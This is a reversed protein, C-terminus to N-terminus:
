ERTFMGYMGLHDGSLKLGRNFGSVCKKGALADITTAISNIAQTAMIENSTLIYGAEPLKAKMGTHFHKKSSCSYLGVIQNPRGTVKSAEMASLLQKFGPQNAQYWDYNTKKNSKRVPPCFDPGGGDRAHGIYMVVESGRAIEGYFKKVAANCQAYQRERLTTTNAVNNTTLTGYTLSVTFRNPKGDPGRVIKTFFDGSGKFGCVNHGRTCPETLTRRLANAIYQDFVHEYPSNDWYGFGVAINLIGDKYLDQYRKKCAPSSDDETTTFPVRILEELHNDLEVKYDTALAPLSLTFGTLLLALIKKM